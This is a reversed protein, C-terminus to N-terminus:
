QNKTCQVHESCRSRYLSCFKWTKRCIRATRKIDKHVRELFFFDVNEHKWWSEIGRPPTFSHMFILKRYTKWVFTDLHHLHSSSPSNITNGMILMCGSIIILTIFLQTYNSKLSIKMYNNIIANKNTELTPKLLATGWWAFTANILNCKLHFLCSATM